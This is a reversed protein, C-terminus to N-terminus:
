EYIEREVYTDIVIRKGFYYPIEQKENVSSTGKKITPASAAAQTINAGFHVFFFEIEWKLLNVFSNNIKLEPIRQRKEEKKKNVNEGSLKTM